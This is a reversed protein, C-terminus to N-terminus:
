LRLDKYCACRIVSHFQASLDSEMKNRIVVNSPIDLLQRLRLSDLRLFYLIVVFLLNVRLGWFWGWCTCCTRQFEASVPCHVTFLDWRVPTRVGRSLCLDAALLFLLGRGWTHSLESPRHDACLSYGSSVTVICLPIEDLMGLSEPNIFVFLNDKKECKWGM